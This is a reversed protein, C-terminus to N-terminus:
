RPQENSLLWYFGLDAVARSFNDLEVPKVIYGHRRARLERRRGAGRAILRGMQRANERIVDLVRHGEADLSRAHDDVLIRGYGEIARLPARLDHSV